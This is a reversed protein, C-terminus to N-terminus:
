SHRVTAGGVGFSAVAPDSFAHAQQHCTSCSVTNNHSLRKDYFLVRGLTARADTIQNGPPTNDKQIYAPKGQNAYNELTGLDLIGNQAFLAVARFALPAAVALALRRMAPSPAECTSFVGSM